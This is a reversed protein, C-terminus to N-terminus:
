RRRRGPRRWRFTVSVSLERSTDDETAAGAPAVDESARGDGEAHAGDGTTAVLATSAAPGAAGDQGDAAVPVPRAADHGATPRAGNGDRAHDGGAPDRDAAPGRPGHGNSSPAPRPAAAPADEEREAAGVLAPQPAADAGGAPVEGSAAGEGDPAAAPQPRHAQSGAEFDKARILVLSLLGSVLAVVAGILLVEDLSHVFSDSIISSLAPRVAAPAQHVIASSGGGSVAGALTAAHVGPIPHAQLDSALRSAVSSGLISGLAATGTAIGVQRFTSNIGSAMGSRAPEVVGVATSALPPNVLGTGIGAVIFGPILGTWSDHVGLRSMWYLGGAVLVLGPAILFRIPILSTARGALTATVMIGGSLILLRLGTGLASYGRVDQLFLVIYLLLAFLSGSLGFAAISGGSFTPKRFLSLDFMPQRNVAEILLFIVLAVFAGSFCVIVGTETWGDQGARILGYVLLVLCATFTVFGAWDPRRAGPQRSEEIRFLTIFIAIAGVPLNVYFIWQWSLGSTLLGGLVPGIAVAIGTISGWIGFATGRERGQFAGALLALSTSFMAAGGIGQGARSLILMESNQALGCLLSGATFVVLGITFLIRRGFLDALSGTTVLLAALTLAYADVVWQLDSFSTHLSRQIDPLAVNVITIDLLLMFTGLCVATLTWWKKAM